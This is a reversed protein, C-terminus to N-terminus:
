ARLEGTEEDVDDFSIQTVADALSAIALPALSSNIDAGVTVSGTDPNPKFHIQLTIRREKKADARRDNINDMIRQKEAAIADLISGTDVDEKIRYNVRKRM